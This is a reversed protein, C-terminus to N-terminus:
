TIQPPPGFHDITAAGCRARVTSVALRIANSGSCRRKLYCDLWTVGLEHRYFTFFSFAPCDCDGSDATLNLWVDPLRWFACHPWSEHLFWCVTRYNRKVRLPERPSPTHANARSFASGNAANM